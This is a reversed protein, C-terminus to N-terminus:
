LISWVWKYNSADYIRYYGQESRLEFETKGSEREENTKRLNYRHIRLREAPKFYFYGPETMKELTFGLSQYVSGTGYRLDAYSVVEEPGYKRIFNKFLKSSGGNVITGSETCLRDIEYGKQKRSYNGTSFTMVQVIRDDYKLGLKIKAPKYGYIHNADVFEKAEKPTLEVVECKRAHIKRSVLGLKAKLISEVISRKYEWEDEFVQILQIDKDKCAVFKDQHYKRDKGCEVSHYYLGNYEIAVNMSPIYIDLEYPWIVKRETQIVKDKGILGSVFDYIENEGKSTNKPMCMRCEHNTDDNFRYEYFYLKRNTHLKGNPCIYTITKEDDININRYGHLEMKAIMERDSKEKKRKNSRLVSEKQRERGEETISSVMKKQHETLYEEGYKEKMTEYSKRGRESMKDKNNEAYEKQKTSLLQKTEETHTTGKRASVLEGSAYMRKKTESQKQRQEQSQSIGKNWAERGKLKESVSRKQDESWKNGFNPNNDGSMRESMKQRSEQSMLSDEGYLEVYQDVNMDHRKLHTNTIQKFEKECIRCKVKM